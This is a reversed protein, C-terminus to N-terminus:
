RFFSNIIVWGGGNGTLGLDAVDISQIIAEPPNSLSQVAQPAIIILGNGLSAPVTTVSLEIFDNTVNHIVVSSALDIFTFSLNGGVTIPQIYGDIQNVERVILSGNTGAM